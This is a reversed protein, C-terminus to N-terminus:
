GGWYRKTAEYDLRGAEALQAANLGRRKKKNKGIWRDWMDDRLRCWGVWCLSCVLGGGPLRIGSLNNTDIHRDCKKCVNM